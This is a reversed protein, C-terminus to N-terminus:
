SIICLSYNDRGLVQDHSMVTIECGLDLSEFCSVVCFKMEKNHSFQNWKDIVHKFCFRLMRNDEFRLSM